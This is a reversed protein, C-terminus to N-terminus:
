APGYLDYPTISFHSVHETSYGKVADFSARITWEKHMEGESEFSSDTVESWAMRYPAAYGAKLGNVAAELSVAVLLVYHHEDNSEVVYVTAM